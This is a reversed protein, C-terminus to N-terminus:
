PTTTGFAVHVNGIAYPLVLSIYKQGYQNQSYYNLVPNNKTQEPIEFGASVSGVSKSSMIFSAQSGLGRQAMQLDVVLYFAALFLFALTAEQETMGLGENFHTNAQDIAKQVDQDIVYDLNTNATVSAYPFDRYFYAKFDAVTPPTWPVSTM